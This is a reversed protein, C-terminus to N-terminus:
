KIEQLLSALKSDFNKAAHRTTLASVIKDIRLVSMSVNPSIM